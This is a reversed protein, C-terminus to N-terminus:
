EAVARIAAILNEIPQNKSIFTAGVDRAMLEAIESPRGSWIIIGVTPDQERIAAAAEFGSKRPMSDDLVAVSFKGPEFEQIAREGDDAEVVQALGKVARRFLLRDAANDEALLVMMAASEALITRDLRERSWSGFWDLWRGLGLRDTASGVTESNGM